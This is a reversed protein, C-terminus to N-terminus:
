RACRAIASALVVFKILMMTRAFHQPNVAVNVTKNLQKAQSTAVAAIVIETTKANHVSMIMACIAINSAVLVVLSVNEREFEVMEQAHLNTVHCIQDMNMSTGIQLVSFTMQGLALDM